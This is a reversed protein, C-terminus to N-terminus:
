ARTDELAERLMSIKFPKRLVRFEPGAAQASDAFATMLLCRLSSYRARVAQALAIGDMSGPMVIDSLVVDFDQRGNLIDMAQIADSAWRVAYGLSTLMVQTVEAVDENDEVLLVRNTGVMKAPASDKHTAVEPNRPLRLTIATGLGSSSTVNMSGGTQEAFRRIQSLWSSAANGERQSVGPSFIWPSKEDILPEGSDKLVVEVRESGNEDRVNRASITFIGGKPMAERARLAANLLALEFQETEVLIPWLNEGFELLLTINGRLGSRLVERFSAVHKEVDLVGAAAEPSRHAFGILQRTLSDGMRLVRDIMDLPRTAGADSVWGRLREIQSELVRLLNRFDYAVAGTLEGVAQMKQARALQERMREAANQANRLESVDRTIKIFGIVDGNADRIADIISQAWYFSGEKRLRWGQIEYRGTTEAVALAEEPMGRERDADTFFLSFHQGLVHEPAFGGMEQAEANWAVVNGRVDLVYVAGALISQHSPLQAEVPAILDRTLKEIQGSM